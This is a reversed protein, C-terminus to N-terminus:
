RLVRFIRALYDEHLANREAAVTDDPQYQEISEREVTGTEALRREVTDLRERTVALETALALTISLLNEIREDGTFIPADGAARQASLDIVDLDKQKVATSEQM